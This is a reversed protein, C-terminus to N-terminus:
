NGGAAEAAAEAERRRSLTQGRELLVMLEVHPTHPFLDIGNAVVPEFPEGVYKDSPSCLMVAQEVFRTHDCSVYVIREIEKTTRLANLVTKHVGERPPDVVAVCSGGAPVNKEIAEKIKNEARGALFSCNTIGNAEANTGADVVAPECIEIGVVKKAGPPQLAVDLGSVRHPSTPLLRRRPTPIM